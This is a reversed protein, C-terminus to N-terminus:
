GTYQKAALKYNAKDRKYNYQNNYDNNYYQYTTDAKDKAINYGNMYDNNALNYMSVANNFNNQKSQSDNFYQQYANQYTDVAKQGLSDQVNNWISQAATQAASSNLGGSNAVGVGMANKMATTGQSTMQSKFMQFLQDKNADYSFEPQNMVADFLQDVNDMAQQVPAYNKDKYEKFEKDAATWDKYAQRNKDYTFNFESAIAM